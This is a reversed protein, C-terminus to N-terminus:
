KPNSLQFVLPIASGKREVSIKIAKGPKWHSFLSATQETLHALDINDLLTVRDGNRLGAKAAPSSEVVTIIAKQETGTFNIGLTTFLHKNQADRTTARAFYMTQAPFDFLVQCEGVFGGFFSLGLIGDEGLKREDDFGHKVPLVSIRPYQISYDAVKISPTFCEEATFSNRITVVESKDFPHLRKIRKVFQERLCISSTGTDVLLRAPLADIQCDILPLDYGKLFVLSVKTFKEPQEIPSFLNNGVQIAAPNNQVQWDNASFLEAGPVIPIFQEASIAMPFLDFWSQVMKPTLSEDKWFSLTESVFDIGVALHRLVNMGITGDLLQKPHEKNWDQLFTDPMILVTTKGFQLGGIQINTLAARRAQPSPPVTTESYVETTLGLAAATDPQLVTAFSGTDVIMHATMRANLKVEITILSEAEQFRLRTQACTRVAPLCCLTLIFGSLLSFKTIM